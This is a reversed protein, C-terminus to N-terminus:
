WFSRISKCRADQCGAAVLTLMLLKALGCFLVVIVSLCASADNTKSVVNVMQAIRCPFKVETVRATIKGEIDCLRAKKLSFANKGSHVLFSLFSQRLYHPYTCRRM